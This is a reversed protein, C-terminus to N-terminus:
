DGVFVGNRVCSRGNRDFGRARDFYHFAPLDFGFCDASCGNGYRRLAFRVRKFYVDRVGCGNNRKRSRSEGLGFLAARHAAHLVGVKRKGGCGCHRGVAYVNRRFDVHGIGVFVFKVNRSQQHSGFDSSIGNSIGDRVRGIGCFYCRFGYRDRYETLYERPRVAVPMHKLFFDSVGFLFDCRRFVAILGRLEIERCAPIIVGLRCEM